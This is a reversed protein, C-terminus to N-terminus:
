LYIISQKSCECLCEYFINENKPMFYFQPKVETRDSVTMKYFSEFQYKLAQQSKTGIGTEQMHKKVDHRM